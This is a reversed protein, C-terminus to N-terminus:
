DRSALSSGVSHWGPGAPLSLQQREGSSGAPAKPIIFKFGLVLENWGRARNELQSRKRHAPSM